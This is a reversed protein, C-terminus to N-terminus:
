HRIHDLTADWRYGMAGHARVANVVALLLTRSWACAVVRALAPVCVVVGEASFTVGRTVTTKRTWSKSASLALNGADLVHHLLPRNGDLEEVVRVGIDVVLLGFRALERVARIRALGDANGGVWRALAPQSDLMALLVASCRPSAILDTVANVLVAPLAFADLQRAVTAMSTRLTAVHKDLTRLRQVHESFRSPLSVTRFSCSTSQDLRLDILEVKM